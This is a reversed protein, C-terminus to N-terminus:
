LAHLDLFHQLDHGAGSGIIPKADGSSHNGPRLLLSSKIRGFFGPKARFPIIRVSRELFRSYAVSRASILYKFENRSGPRYSLPFASPTRRLSLEIAFLQGSVLSERSNSYGRKRDRKACPTHSSSTQVPDTASLHL